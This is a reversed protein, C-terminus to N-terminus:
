NCREIFMRNPDTSAVIPSVIEATNVIPSMVSRGTVSPTCPPLRGSSSNVSATLTTVNVLLFVFTKCPQMWINNNATHTIKIKTGHTNLSNREVRKESPSYQGLLGHVFGVLDEHGSMTAHHTACDNSPEFAVPEVIQQRAIM